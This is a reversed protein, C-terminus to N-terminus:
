TEANTVGKLFEIAKAVFEKTEGNDYWSWDGEWDHTEFYELAEKRTDFWLIDNELDNCLEQVDEISGCAQLADCGSCSGWGFILYGIKSDKVYLVRTDGQYSGEDVQFIVTGFADIMPQYNSLGWFTGNWMYQEESYLDKVNVM